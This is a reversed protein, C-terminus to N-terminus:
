MFTVDQIKTTFNTVRTEREGGGHSISIAQSSSASELSTEHAVVSLVILPSVIKESPPFHRGSIRRRECAVGSSM